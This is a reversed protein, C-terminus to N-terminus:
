GTLIGWFLPAIIMTVLVLINLYGKEPTYQALVESVHMRFLFHYVLTETFYM